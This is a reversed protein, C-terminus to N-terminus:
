ASRSAGARFAARLCSDISKQQALPQCTSALSNPTTDLRVGTLASIGHCFVVLSSVIAGALWRSMAALPQSGRSGGFEVDVRRSLIPEGWRPSHASGMMSRLVSAVFTPIRAADSFHPHRLLRCGSKSIGKLARRVARGCKGYGDKGDLSSGVHERGDDVLGLCGDSGDAPLATGAPVRERLTSHAVSPETRVKEVMHLAFTGHVRAVRWRKAGM